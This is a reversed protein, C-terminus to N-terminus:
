LGEYVTALPLWMKLSQLLVKGKPGPSKESKWEAERRFVTIEHPEQGVLVYEELSSINTCALFKERRDIRETSASLVEVLLKPYRVFRPHTDRRDCTVVVDPYYFHEDERLDFNVRIDSLYLKCPGRGLHLRLAFAVNQVIQNHARTEGAMAYVLGGVYEHRIESAEEAALYGAVTEREHKTAAQM